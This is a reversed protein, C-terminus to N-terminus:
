GYEVLVVNEVYGNQTHNFLPLGDGIRGALCSQSRNRHKRSVVWLGIYCMSGNALWVCSNRTDWIYIKVQENTLSSSAGREGCSCEFRIWQECFVCVFVMWLSYLNDCQNRMPWGFWIYIYIHPNLEIPKPWGAMYVVTTRDPVSCNFYYYITAPRTQSPATPVAPVKYGRRFRFAVHEHSKCADM